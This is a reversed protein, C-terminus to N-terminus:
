KLDNNFAGKELYDTKVLLYRQLNSIPIKTYGYNKYNKMFSKWSKDDCYVRSNILRPTVVIIDLNEKELFDSFNYEKKSYPCVDIFNEGLYTSYSGEAATIKIKNTLNLGRIIRITTTVNNGNYKTPIAHLVTKNPVLLVIFLGILYYSTKFTFSKDKEGFILTLIIFLFFFTVILYHPRPFILISSILSPIISLTLVFITQKEQKFNRWFLSISKGRFYFFLTVIISLFLIIGEIMFIPNVSLRQLNSLAFISESQSFKVPLLINSHIFFEGFGFKSFNWFNYTIHKFVAIPNAIFCELFSNANGFVHKIIISTDKWSSYKSDTRAVWNIAFHERFALSSRGGGFPNGWYIFIGIIFALVILFIFPNIKKNKVMFFVSYVFLLIFTLFFEPRAYSTLFLGLTYIILKNETKKVLSAIIFFFLLVLLAFNSVRPWIVLNAYSILLFFSFFLSLYINVKKTRLFIFTLLPLFIVQFNYNFYYLDINDSTFFSLLFYWLSYLPAWDASPFGNKLLNVGSGLYGSEDYLGIDILSSLGYSYKLGALFLVLSFFLTVKHKDFFIKTKNM